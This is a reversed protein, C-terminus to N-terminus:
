LEFYKVVFYAAVMASLPLINDTIFEMVFLMVAFVLFALIAFLAFACLSVAYLANIM